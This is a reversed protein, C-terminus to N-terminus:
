LRQRKVSLALASDCVEHERGVSLTKKELTVRDNVNPSTVFKLDHTDHAKCKTQDGFKGNTVDCATAWM